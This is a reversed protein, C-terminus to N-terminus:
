LGAIALAKVVAEAHRMALLADFGRGGGEGNEALANAIVLRIAAAESDTAM